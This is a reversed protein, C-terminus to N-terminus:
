SSINKCMKGKSSVDLFLEFKTPAVFIHVISNSRVSNINLASLHVITHVSYTCDIPDKTDLISTVGPNWGTRLFKAEKWASPHVIQKVFHDEDEFTAKGSPVM